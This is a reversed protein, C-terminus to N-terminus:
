LIFSGTKQTLIASAPHKILHLLQKGKTPERDCVESKQHHGHQEDKWNEANHQTKANQKDEGQTKYAQHKWHRQIKWEKNGM